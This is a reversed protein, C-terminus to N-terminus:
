VQGPVLEKFGLIVFHPKQVAGGDPHATFRGVLDFLVLAEPPICIYFFIVCGDREISVIFSRVLYFIHHCNIRHM